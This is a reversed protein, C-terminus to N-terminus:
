AVSRLHDKKFDAFHEITGTKSFLYQGLFWGQPTNGYISLTCRRLTFHKTSGANFGDPTLARVSLYYRNKVDCHPSTCRVRLDLRLEPGQGSTIFGDFIALYLQALEFPQVARPLSWAYITEEHENRLSIHCSPTHNCGKRGSLPINAFAQWAKDEVQQLGDNSNISQLRDLAFLLLTSNASNDLGLKETLLTNQKELQRIRSGYISDATELEAGRKKIWRRSKYAKLRTQTIKVVPYIVFYVIFAVFLGVCFISGLIDSLSTNAM